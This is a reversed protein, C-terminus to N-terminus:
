SIWNPLFHSFTSYSAERVKKVAGSLTGAINQVFNEQQGKEKGFDKWAEKPQVFDKNIVQSEFSTM